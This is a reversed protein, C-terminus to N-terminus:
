AEGSLRLEPTLVWWFATGPTTDLWFGLKRLTKVSAVNRRDCGAIITEAGGHAFLWDIVAGTMETAYGQQRRDRAVSYGMEVEDPARLSPEFRVDGVISGEERHIAVARIPTAQGWAPHAAKAVLGLNAAAWDAPAQAGLIESFAEGGARAAQALQPTVPELRLRATFLPHRLPRM